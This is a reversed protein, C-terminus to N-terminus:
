LDINKQQLNLVFLLNLANCKTIQLIACNTTHDHCKGENIKNPTYNLMEIKDANAM